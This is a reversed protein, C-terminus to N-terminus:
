PGDPLVMISSGDIEPLEHILEKLFLRRIDEIQELTPGEVGIALQASGRIEDALSSLRAKSRHSWDKSWRRNSKEAKNVIGAPQAM